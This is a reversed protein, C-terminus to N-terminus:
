KRGTAHSRPSIALQRAALSFRKRYVAPTTGARRRFHHRMTELSGFGCKAAIDELTAAADRELHEQALRIREAILWEGPPLGTVQEFRRQFTRLSMGAQAALHRISHIQDLRARLWDIMPGLRANDRERAVPRQIFQAQGGDRHPPVVLRRAVCNAAEPGFDKRVVHLCLDIGAASGAATLVDGEDVYLMDPELRIRPFRDAISDVYRWHTTARRGDLFGCAALVTIGSCLSMVRAGRAHARVLDAILPNPVPADIARWGPVVILDAKRLVSRDSTANVVLGGAANFPGPEISCVAYRYWDRGMEPRSLGFVEFAVGFEFTCLGDYALVAVLPGTWKPSDSNPM